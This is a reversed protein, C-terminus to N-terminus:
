KKRQSTALLDFDSGSVALNAQSDETKTPQRGTYVDDISIPLKKM